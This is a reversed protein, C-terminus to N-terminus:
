ISFRVETWDHLESMRRTAYLISGGFEHLDLTITQEELERLALLLKDVACYAVISHEGEIHLGTTAADSWLDLYGRYIIFAVANGDEALPAVEHPVLQKLLATASVFFRM